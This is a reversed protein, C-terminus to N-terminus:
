IPLTAWGHRLTLPCSSNAIFSFHSHAPHATLSLLKQILQVRQQPLEPIGAGTIAMPQLHMMTCSGKGPMTGCDGEPVLGQLWSPLATLQQHGQGPHGKWPLPERTDGKQVCSFCAGVMGRSLGPSVAVSVRQRHQGLCRKWTFLGKRNACM